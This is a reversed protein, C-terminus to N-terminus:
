VVPPELPPEAAATALPMTATACAFSPPPDIRMGADHQPRTPSFGVLPRVDSPGSWPSIEDNRVVSSHTLRVTRSVAPISCASWPRHGPSGIDAGGGSRGYGSSTPALGPLSRM